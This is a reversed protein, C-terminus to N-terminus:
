EYKAKELEVKYQAHLMKNLEDFAELMKINSSLKNIDQEIKGEQINEIDCHLEQFIEPFQDEKDFANANELWEITAEDTAALAAQKLWVRAAEDIGKAVRLCKKLEDNVNKYNEDREYFFTAIM